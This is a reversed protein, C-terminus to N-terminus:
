SWIRRMLTSRKVLVRASRKADGALVNRLRKMKTSSLAKVSRDWVEPTLSLIPM